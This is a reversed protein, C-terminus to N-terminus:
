QPEKVPRGTADIRTATTLMVRRSGDPRTQVQFKTAGDGIYPSDKIAAKSNIQPRGTEPDISGDTDTYDMDLRQGLGLFSGGIKMVHGIQHSEFNTGSDDTPAILERIIEITGTEGNRATISPLTILDIGKTQAIERMMLQIQGDSYQGALDPATWDVGAPIELMKMELKQQMPLAETVQDTIGSLATLDAASDTEIQLTSTGVSYEIRTSLAFEIGLAELQARIDRSSSSSGAMEGLRAAIDPPVFLARRSREALRAPEELHYTSGDRRVTLGSAAALMRISGDLTGTGLRLHLAKDKGPSIDFALPVPVEGTERCAEEYAAKLKQLAAALTLGDIEVVPLFFDKLQAPSHTPKVTVTERKSVKSPLSSQETEEDASSLGHDKASKKRSEDAPQLHTAIEDGKWLLLALLILVFSALLRLKTTSGRPAPSSPKM